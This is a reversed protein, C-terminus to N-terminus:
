RVWEACCYNLKSEAPCEFENKQMDAFQIKKILTEFLLNITTSSKKIYFTISKMGLTPIAITRSHLFFETSISMKQIISSM